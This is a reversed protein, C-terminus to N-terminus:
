ETQGGEAPGFCASAKEEPEDAFSDAYAASSDRKSVWRQFKEVGETDL